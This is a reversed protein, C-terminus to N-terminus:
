ARDPHLAGNLHGLGRDVASDDLEAVEARSWDPDPPPPGAAAIRREVADPVRQPVALADWCVVVRRPNGAVNNNTIDVIAEETLGELRAEEALCRIITTLYECAPLRGEIRRMSRVLTLKEGLALQVAKGNITSDRYITRLEREETSCEAHLQELKRAILEEPSEGVRRARWEEISEKLIQSVRGQSIGVMGAIVTQTCGRLSLKVVDSRLREQETLSKTKPAAM